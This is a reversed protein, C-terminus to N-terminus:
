GGPEPGWLVFRGDDALIPRPGRELGAIITAQRDASGSPPWAQRDALVYASPPPSPFGALRVVRPRSSLPAIMGDDALLLADVPVRAAVRVMADISVDHRAFAPDAASFPPGGQDGREVAHRYIYVAYFFALVLGPVIGATFLKVISTDSAIGYLIFGISPPILNDIAGAAIM